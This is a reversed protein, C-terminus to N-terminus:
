FRDFLSREELWVAALNKAATQVTFKEQIDERASKALRLRLDPNSKLAVINEALLRADGPPVLMASEGDRLIESTGGVDTALIPLGSAAAELLVRGLPEQHAAHVLLDATNMLRHVDDRYGLFHVRRGIGTEEFRNHLLQEYDISEQKSSNREGVIAAHVDSATENLSIMAEAFVDLGKRLGIQGVCLIVFSDEPIGFEHRLRKEEPRPQFTECDIGNYLVTTKGADLGQGVHFSKTAQSVALLRNNGNLDEIAKKSLRIIDRLHVIRRGSIDKSLIGTLRGMSLSNAHIIEPQLPSLKKTMQNLIRDRPVRKGGADWLSLPLIPISRRALEEALRGEKPALATFEWKSIQPHNARLEDLAALQSREGGNLTPYEFILAIRTAICACEENTERGFM